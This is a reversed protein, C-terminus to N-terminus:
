PALLIRRARAAYSVGSWLTLVLTIWLSVIALERFATEGAVLTLLACGLVCQAVMKYKGLREAPFPIGSAEALGRITTVLFERAVIVVVFWSQMITSAAPFELLMILTGCILVKDAFPDVVRGFMTVQGTRRALWGDVVDTAAAVLFMWFAAWALAAPPRAPDAVSELCAFCAVTLLLRSLTILNPANV